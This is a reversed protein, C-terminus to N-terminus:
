NDKRRKNTDVNNAGYKNKHYECLLYERGSVEVLYLKDTKRKSKCFNCSLRM